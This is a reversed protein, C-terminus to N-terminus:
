SVWGGTSGDGSASVSPMGYSFSGNGKPWLFLVRFPVWDSGPTMGRLRRLLERSARMAEEAGADAVYVWVRETLPQANMEGLWQRIVRLADEAVPGDLVVYHNLHHQELM